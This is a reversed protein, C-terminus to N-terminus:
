FTYNLKVRLADNKADQSGMEYAAWINLGDLEGSFSYSGKIATYGYEKSNVKDDENVYSAGVYANSSINYTAALKYSDQDARYQNAFEESWTYALDAGNGLGPIVNAADDVTVYAALLDVSGFTATAQVGLLNTDEQDEQESHYYQSSLGFNGFKYGAEFYATEFVDVVDLYAATLTLNEISKNTIAITYAGDEFPVSIFGATQKKFSGIKGDNSNRTWGPNVETRAQFKNVYAVTVSTDPLDTNTVTLGQVAEKNVRSGSGGLVPSWFYMRGIQTTTNSMKYSLYIESLQGGSGYM